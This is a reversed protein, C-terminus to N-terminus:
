PKTVAMPTRAAAILTAGDFGKDKAAAVWEQEVAVARQRM